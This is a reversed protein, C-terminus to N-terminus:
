HQALDSKVIAEFQSRVGLAAYIQALHLPATDRGRKLKRTIAM